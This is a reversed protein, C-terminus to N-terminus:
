EGFHCPKERESLTAFRYGNEKLERIIPRLSNLTAKCLASDHLLIVPDNYKTYDKRVNALITETTPCGVSDEGSVNWDAYDIGEEKMQEIVRAKYSRVYTNASGWPFRFLKPTINLKKELCVKTKQLDMCYSEGSAYIEEAVHCYTHIGIEHGEDLEQKVVDVMEGEVQQGILFFTAHVQEEKLIKLYEATLVSPGDDFTLYAVKQTDAASEKVAAQDGSETVAGKEKSGTSSRMTGKSDSNMFLMGQVLLFMMALCCIGGANQLWRNRKMEM